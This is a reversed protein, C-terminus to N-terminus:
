QGKPITVLPYVSGKALRTYLQPSLYDWTVYQIPAHAYSVRMGEFFAYSLARNMAHSCGCLPYNPAEESMGAPLGSGPDIQQVPMAGSRPRGQFAM